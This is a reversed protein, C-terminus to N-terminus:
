RIDKYKKNTRENRIRDVYRPFMGYILTAISLRLYFASPRTVGMYLLRFIERYTPELDKLGAIYAGFKSDLLYGLFLKKVKVDAIGQYCTLRSNYYRLSIEKAKERDKSMNTASDHHIRYMTLKETSFFFPKNAQLLLFFIISDPSADIDPFIDNYKCVEKKLVAITSMNFDGRHRIIMKFRRLPYWLMICDIQKDYPEISELINRSNRDILQVNNHFYICGTKDFANIVKELKDNRFLDDDDMFVIIDGSSRNLGTVLRSGLTTDDFLEIINNQRMFSSLDEDKFGTICIIEYESRPITQNLVSLLAEKIFDKRKYAMVLVTLRIGNEM